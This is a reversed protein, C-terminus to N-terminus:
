LEEKQNVHISCFYRVHQALQARAHAEYAPDRDCQTMLLYLPAYFTLALTSPNEAQPFLAALIQQQYELPEQVYMRNLLHALEPNEFQSFTLMRRLGSISPDHLFYSFVGEAMSLLREASIGRFM